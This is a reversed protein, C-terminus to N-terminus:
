GELARYRGEHRAPRCSRHDRRPHAGGDLGDTRAVRRRRLLLLEGRARAPRLVQRASGSGPYGRGGPLHQPSVQADHHLRGGGAARHRLRVRRCGAPRRHGRRPRDEDPRGGPRPHPWASPEAGPDAPNRGPRNGLSRGCAQHLVLALCRHRRRARRDGPSREQM